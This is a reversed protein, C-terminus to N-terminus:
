SRRRQTRSTSARVDPQRPSSGFISSGSRLEMASLDMSNQTGDSRVMSSTFARGQPLQGDDVSDEEAEAEEEEEDAGQENEGEDEDEDEEDEDEEESSSLEAETDTHEYGGEAEPVEDDLDGDMDMDMDLDGEDHVLDEEQLMQSQEAEEDTDEGADAGLMGGSAGADMGLADRFATESMRGAMVAAPAAGNVDDIDEDEEEEESEEADMGSGDGDPEPIEDDLDRGEMGMDNGDEGLLEGAAEAEALEQALQERRAAERQEEAEREEEQTQLLTKHIGPPKIWTIGYNKVNAKRRSHYIEDALLRTLPSRHLLSNQTRRPQPAQTQTSSLPSPDNNV